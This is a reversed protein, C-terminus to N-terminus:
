KILTRLRTDSNLGAKQAVFSVYNDLEKDQALSYVAILERLTSDGTLNTVTRGRAKQMLDFRMAFMGTEDNYFYAFGDRIGLAFISSRLNGPNHNRYSVSSAKDLASTLGAPYWGEFEAM